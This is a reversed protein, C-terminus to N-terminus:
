GRHAKATEARLISFMQDLTKQVLFQSKNKEAQYNPTMPTLARHSHQQQEIDKQIAEDCFSTKRLSKPVMPLLETGHAFADNGIGTGSKEEETTTNEDDDIALLPGTSTSLATGFSGRGLTTNDPATSSSSNNNDLM